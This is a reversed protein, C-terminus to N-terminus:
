KDLVETTFKKVVMAQNAYRRYIYYGSLWNGNEDIVVKNTTKQKEQPFEVYFLALLMYGFQFEFM